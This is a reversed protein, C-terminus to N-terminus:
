GLEGLGVPKSGKDARRLLFYFAGAGGHRVHATSVAVVHPAVRGDRLWNPLARRIKGKSVDDLPAANLTGKGTIVLLLRWGRMRGLQVMGCVSEFANEVSLGHLDLVADVAMQGRSISRMTAADVGHWQDLVPALSASKPTAAKAGTGALNTISDINLLPEATHMAAKPAPETFRGNGAEWEQM